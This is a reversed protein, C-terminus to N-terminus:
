KAPGPADSCGKRMRTVDPSSNSQWAGTKSMSSRTSTTVVESPMVQFTHGASMWVKLSRGGGPGGIGTEAQQRHHRPRAEACEQDRKERREARKISGYESREAAGDCKGCHRPHQGGEARDCVGAQAAARTERM